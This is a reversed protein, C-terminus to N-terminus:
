SGTRSGGPGNSETGNPVWDPRPEFSAPRYFSGEEAITYTHGRYRAEYALSYHRVVGNRVVLQFTHVELVTVEGLSVSRKFDDEGLLLIFTGTPPGAESRPIRMASLLVYLRDAMTARPIRVEDASLPPDGTTTGDRLREVTSVNEGVFRGYTRENVGWIAQRDLPFKRYLRGGLTIPPDGDIARRYHIRGPERDLRISTTGVVTGNRRAIVAAALGYSSGRLTTAHHDLLTRRDLSPSPTPSPTSSDLAPRPTHWTLEGDAEPEFLASCGSTVLLLALGLALLGRRRPRASAM